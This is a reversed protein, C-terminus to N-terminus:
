DLNRVITRIIRMADADDKAIHDVLGSLRGHTDAGGLDEASVNEGTAAKVLPPGALFITGQGKVIISQECMAPIYAGGATCSGLVAAIQPIGAASMRAQNFFIRSAISCHRFAHARCCRAAAPTGSARPKAVVWGSKLWGIACIVRSHKWRRRM